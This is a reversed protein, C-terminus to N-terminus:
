SGLRNGSCLDDETITWQRPERAPWRAAAERAQRRTLFARGLLGGGTVVLVNGVLGAVLGLFQGATLVVFGGALTCGGPWYSGAVPAAPIRAPGPPRASSFELHM